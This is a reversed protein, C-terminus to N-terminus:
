ALLGTTTFYFKNMLIILPILWININERLLSETWEVSLIILNNMKLVKMDTMVEINENVGTNM